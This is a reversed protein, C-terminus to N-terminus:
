KSSQRKSIEQDLASFFEAYGKPDNDQSVGLTGLHSRQVSVLSKGEAAAEVQVNWDTASVVFVSNKVTQAKITGGAADTNQVNAGLSRLAAVSAAFVTDKSGSYTKDKVPSDKALAVACAFAGVFAVITILRKM